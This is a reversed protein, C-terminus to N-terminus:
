FGNSNLAAQGKYNNNNKPTYILGTETFRPRRRRARRRQSENGSGLAAEPVLLRRLSPRLGTVVVAREGEQRGGESEAGPYHLM